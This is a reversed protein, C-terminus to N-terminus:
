RVNVAGIGAEDELATVALSEGWVNRCKRCQVIIPLHGDPLKANPPDTILNLGCAAIILCRPSGHTPMAAEQGCEPCILELHGDAEFNAPTIVKWTKM